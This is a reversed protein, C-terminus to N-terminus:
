GLRCSPFESEPKALSRIAVPVSGL